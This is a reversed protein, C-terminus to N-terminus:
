TIKRDLCVDLYMENLVKGSRDGVALTSGRFTGQMDLSERAM